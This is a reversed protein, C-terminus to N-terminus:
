WRGRFFVLVTNQEGALDAQTFPAGDARASAFAPFLKGEAAPGAYPPLLMGLLIFWEGAALLTVLVLAVIRWVTRSRWLAVVIVVVGLTAAAPVYWPATLNRLWIQGAYAAVGLVPLILDLFLLHRGPYRRPAADPATTM